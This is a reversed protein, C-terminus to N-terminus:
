TFRNPFPNWEHNIDRTVPSNTKTQEIVKTQSPNTVNQQCSSSEMADSHSANVATDKPINGPMGKEQIQDTAATAKGVDTRSVDEIAKTYEHTTHLLHYKDEVRKTCKEIPYGKIRFYTCTPKIPIGLKM